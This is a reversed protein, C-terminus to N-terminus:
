QRALTGIEGGDKDLVTLTDGDVTATAMGSLWTDVDPCAKRTSAVAEFTVTAGDAEWASMLRNCGDSGTVNGDEALELYPQEDEPAGWTGAVELPTETPTQTSTPEDTAKDAPEDSGCASVGLTLLLAAAALLPRSPVSM